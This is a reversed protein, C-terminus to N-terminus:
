LIGGIEYTFDTAAWTVSMEKTLSAMTITAAFGIGGIYQWQRSTATDSGWPSIDWPSVDWPSGGISLLTSPTSLPAPADAFDLAIGISPHYKGNATIIPRVATFFKQRGEAKFYSYAPTVSAAIGAGNDTAGTEAQYVTTTGGFYIADRFLAWCNAPLNVYRCWQNTVTNMVYQHQTGPTNTPVNVFLKSGFPYFTLQWGFNNSYNTLDASILDIIKFSVADSQERRDTLAAKSMPVVGDVTLLLTDDGVREYFRQGIPRGMRFQGVKQWQGANAPDLGQYLLVEGQTSVFGVYVNIGLSSAVQWTVMGAMAGGLVYLSSFDISTAAGGISNLPLYWVRFSNKEVLWIRNAYVQVDKILSTTVGTITTLAWTTGDYIRMADSGNACLLFQGGITGFNVYQWRASTLGSVVAAGVAGPTTADYIGAGAAAFLQSTTASNYTMLTEVSAAFGTVRAKYGPRISCSTVGPFWNDMQIADTAPMEAISNLANLGGVPSPISATNVKQPRVARRATM